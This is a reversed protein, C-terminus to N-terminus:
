RSPIQHLSMGLRWAGTRSRKRAGCKCFKEKQPKKEKKFVRHRLVQM